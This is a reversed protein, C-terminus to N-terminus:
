DYWQMTMENECNDILHMKRRFVFTISKDNKMNKIHIDCIAYEFSEHQQTNLERIKLSTIIIRIEDDLIQQKYFNRNEFTVDVNIDICVNTSKIKTLLSVEIKIYNWNRFDYDIDFDFVFNINFRIIIVNSNSTDFVISSQYNNINITKTVDITFIVISYVVVVVISCKERLHRYLVNNFSFTKRCRRYRSQFTMIVVFSIFNILMEDNSYYNQDYYKLNENKAHYDDHEENQQFFVKEILKKKTKKTLLTHKLKIMANNIITIIKLNKLTKSQRIKIKRIQRTKSQLDCFNVISLCSNRLLLFSSRNIKSTQFDISIAININKIITLQIKIRMIVRLRIIFFIFLSFTTSRHIITKDITTKDHTKNISKVILAVIVITTVSTKKKMAFTM